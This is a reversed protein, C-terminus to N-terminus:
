RSSKQHDGSNSIGINVTYLKQFSILFAGNFIRTSFYVGGDAGRCMSTTMAANTSVSYPHTTSDVNLFFDFDFSIGSYSVHIKNYHKGFSSSCTRIFYFQLRFQNTQKTYSSNVKSKMISFASVKTIPIWPSMNRRVLVDNNTM